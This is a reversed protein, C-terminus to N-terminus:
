RPENSLDLMGAGVENEPYELPRAASELGSQIEAPSSSPNAERWVALAGSTLGTAYSTGSYGSSYGGSSDGSTLDVGPAAIDLYDGRTSFSAPKWDSELEDLTSAQLAAVAVLGDLDYAAPYHRPSGQERQNGGAAAILTGNRLASELAARISEIPTEGGLSLNLVLNGLGESRREATALSHCIGLLVDSTYCLGNSDCVRVPLVQAKPAVGSTTGAALVAIPTGHGSDGFSDDATADEAVFDYGDSSQLRGDLEAHGSVGTDIVAILTGAGTLGRLRSDDAGIAGLHNIAGSSYGSMPDSHWVTEGDVRSKLEDLAEGSDLGLVEIRVLDGSCTGSRSGLPRPGELVVFDLGVLHDTLEAVTTGPAVVLMFEGAVIDDGLVDLDTLLTQATLTITVPQNGAPTAQPVVFSFQNGNIVSVEAPIAAVTVAVSSTNAGSLKVTVIDGREAWEPSLTATTSLTRFGADDSISGCAVLLLTSSSLALAKLVNHVNM